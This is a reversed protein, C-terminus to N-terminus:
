GLQAWTNLLEKIDSGHGRGGDVEDILVKAREILMWLMNRCYEFSGTREMYKVAYAKIDPQDSRQKLISLLQLNSPDSRISHIVPFSFKGETLDECFGKQHTYAVSFLNVYDDRIQYIIGLLNM